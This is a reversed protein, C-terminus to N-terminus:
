KWKVVSSMGFYLILIKFFWLSLKHLSTIPYQSAVGCEARFSCSATNYNPALSVAHSRDPPRYEAIFLSVSLCTQFVLGVFTIGFHSTVLVQSLSRIPPFFFSFFPHGKCFLLKTFEKLKPSSLEWHDHSWSIYHYLLFHLNDTM